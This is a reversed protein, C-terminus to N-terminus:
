QLLVQYCIYYKTPALVADVVVGALWFGRPEDRCDKVREPRWEGGRWTEQVSQCTVVQWV